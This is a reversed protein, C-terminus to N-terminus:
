SESRSGFVAVKALPPRRWYPVPRAPKNLGHLPCWSCGATTGDCTCIGPGREGPHDRNM